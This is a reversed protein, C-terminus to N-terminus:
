HIPLSTFMWNLRSASPTAAGNGTLGVVPDILPAAVITAPLSILTSESPRTIPESLRGMHIGRSTIRKTSAFSQIFPCELFARDKMM